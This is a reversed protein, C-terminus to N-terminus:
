HQDVSIATIKFFSFDNSIKRESGQRLSSQNISIHFIKLVTPNVDGDYLKVWGSHWAALKDWGDQPWRAKLIEEPTFSCCDLTFHDMISFERAEDKIHSYFLIHRRM